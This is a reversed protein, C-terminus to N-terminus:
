IRNNNLIDLAYDIAYSIAKEKKDFRNEVDYIMDDNIYSEYIARKLFGIVRFRGEIEISHSLSFWEVVEWYEPREIYMDNNNAVGYLEENSAVDKTSDNWYRTRCKIGIFGNEKLKKAQNFTVYKAKIEM